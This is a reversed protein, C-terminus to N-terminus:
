GCLGSLGFMGVVVFAWFYVGFCGVLVCLAVLLVVVVVLLLVVAFSCTFWLGMLLWVDFELAFLALMQWCTVSLCLM